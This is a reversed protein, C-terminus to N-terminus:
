DTETTRPRPVFTDGESAALPRDRFMQDTVSDIARGVVQGLIVAKDPSDLPPHAYVADRHPLSRDRASVIMKEYGAIGLTTDLATNVIIRARIFRELREAQRRSPTKARDIYGILSSESFSGAKM